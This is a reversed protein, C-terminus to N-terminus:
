FSPRPNASGAKKRQTTTQSYRTEPGEDPHFVQAETVVTRTMQGHKDLAFSIRTTGSVEIAQAKRDAQEESVPEGMLEGAVIMKEAEARRVEAEDIALSGVLLANHDSTNNRSLLVSSAGHQYQSGETLELRGLDITEITELIQQPDCEIKFVNWTFYYTGCAGNDIGAEALFTDRRAEMDAANLLKLSGAACREVEVPWQWEAPPRDESAIDFRNTTCEGTKELLEETYVNRGSSSASSGNEGESRTEYSVEIVYAEVQPSSPLEAMGSTALALIVPAAVMGTRM